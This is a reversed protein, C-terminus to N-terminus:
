LHQAVTAAVRLGPTEGGVVVVVDLPLPPVFDLIVLYLLLLLLLLLLLEPLLELVPLPLLEPPPLWLPLPLLPLVLELLVLDSAFELRSVAVVVVAVVVGSVEVAAETTLGM